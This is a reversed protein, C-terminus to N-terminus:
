SLEQQVKVNLLYKGGLYIIHHIDIASFSKNSLKKIKQINKYSSSILNNKVISVTTIGLIATIALILLSFILMLRIKITKM